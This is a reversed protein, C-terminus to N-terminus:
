GCGYGHGCRGGAVQIFTNGRPPLIAHGTSGVMWCARAGNTRIRLRPKRANIQRFTGDPGYADRSWDM